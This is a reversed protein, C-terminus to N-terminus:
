RGELCKECDPDHMPGGVASQSYSDRFWLYQHGNYTFEVIGIKMHGKVSEGSNRLRVYIYEKRTDQINSGDMSVGCSLVCLVLIVVALIKKM